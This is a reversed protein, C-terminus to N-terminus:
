QSFPSPKKYVEESLVGHHYFELYGDEVSAKSQKKLWAIYDPTAPEAKEIEAIMESKTM